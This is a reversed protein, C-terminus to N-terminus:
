ANARNVVEGCLAAHWMGPALAAVNGREGSSKRIIHLTGVGDVHHACGIFVHSTQPGAGFDLPEPTIVTTNM